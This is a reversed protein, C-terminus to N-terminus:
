LVEWICTGNEIRFAEFFQVSEPSTEGFPVLRDSLSVVVQAPEPGMQVVRELAYNQCLWAIDAAALDFDVVGTEAATEPNIAPALFRFRSVLGEPGPANWITEILTVVQGSPLEIATDDGPVVQGGADQVPWINGQDGM